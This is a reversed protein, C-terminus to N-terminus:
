EVPMYSPETSVVAHRKGKDCGRSHCIPTTEVGRARLREGYTCRKRGRVSARPKDMEPVELSFPDSKRKRESEDEPNEKEEIM